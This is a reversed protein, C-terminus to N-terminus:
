FFIIPFSLAYKRNNGVPKKGVWTTHDGPGALREMRFRDVDIVDLRIGTTIVYKHTEGRDGGRGPGSTDDAPSGSDGRVQV